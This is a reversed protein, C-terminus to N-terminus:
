HSEETLRAEQLARVEKRLRTTELANRITVEISELHIPKIVYDHAGLKMAAIVTEVDEYATIMVVLVEPARRKIEELAAIGDMGPLGIDLLILDPPVEELAALADEANGFGEIRYDGGFIAAIGSRISREDDVIYLTYEIM